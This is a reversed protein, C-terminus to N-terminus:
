FPSQPPPYFYLHEAVRLEYLPMAAQPGKETSRLSRPQCVVPVYLTGEAHRIRNRASASTSHPPLSGAILFILRCLLCPPNTTPPALGLRQETYVCPRMGSHVSQTM